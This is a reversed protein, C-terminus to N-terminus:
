FQIKLLEKGQDIPVIQLYEMTTQIRSHGLIRHLIIIEGGQRIWNVAFSHRFRHPNGGFYKKSLQWARQRTIPFIKDESKFNACYIELMNKITPHMPVIRYHYKRSKQWLAELTYNQFDIDKKKLSLIESIRLGTFWLTTFLMKHM